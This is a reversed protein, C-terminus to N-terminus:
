DENDLLLNNQKDNDDEIAFNFKIEKFEYKFSSVIISLFVVFLIEGISQANTAIRPNLFVFGIGMIVFGIFSLILCILRFKFIFSDGFKNSVIVSKTTIIIMALFGLFASINHIIYYDGLNCYSLLSLFISLIIAIIKFAYLSRGQIWGNYNIYELYYFAVFYFVISILTMFIPFIVHNPYAVGTESINPSYKKFRPKIEYLFYTIYISLLLLLSVLLPINNFNISTPLLVLSM